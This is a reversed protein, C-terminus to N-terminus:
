ISRLTLLIVQPRVFVRMPAHRGIGHSVYVDAGAASKSFGSRFRQGHDSVIPMAPGWLGFLAFEAGHTHGSLMLDVRTLDCREAVDPNHSLMLVFDGNGAGSVAKAVDPTRTWLDEVGAVFLGDRVTLGANELLVMGHRNMAGDLRAPNDHNGGVGYIGDPPAIGAIIEMCRELDVRPFDGGLLALDIERAAVNECLKALKDQPYNHIDTLFAIRYGDLSPSIKPSTYAVEKYQIMKDLTLASLMHIGAVAFGAAALWKIAKRRPTHKFTIM